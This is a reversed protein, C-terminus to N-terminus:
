FLHMNSYTFSSNSEVPKDTQAQNGARPATQPSTFEHSMHAQQCFYMKSILGQLHCSNPAGTQSDSSDAEQDLLMHISCAARM